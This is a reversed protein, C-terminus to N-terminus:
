EVQARARQWVEYILKCPQALGAEGQIVVRLWSNQYGHVQDWLLNDEDWTESAVQDAVEKGLNGGVWRNYDVQHVGQPHHEIVRQAALVAEQNDAYAIVNPSKLRGRRSAASLIAMGEPFCSVKPLGRIHTGFSKCEDGHGTLGETHETQLHVLQRAPSSDWWGDTVTRLKWQSDRTVEVQTSSDIKDTWACVPCGQGSGVCEIYMYNSQLFEMPFPSELPDWDLMWEVRMRMQGLQMWALPHCHAVWNVIYVAMRGLVAKHSVKQMVEAAETLTDGMIGMKWRLLPADRIKTQLNRQYWLIQLVRLTDIWSQLEVVAAATAAKDLAAPNIYDGVKATLVAFDGALPNLDGEGLSEVFQAATM